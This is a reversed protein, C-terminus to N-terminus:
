KLCLFLDNYELINKASSFFGAINIEIKVMHGILLLRKILKHDAQLVALVVCNPSLEKDEYSRQGLGRVMPYFFRLVFWGFSLLNEPCADNTM